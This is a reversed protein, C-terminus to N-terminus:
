ESIQLEIYPIMNGYRYDESWKGNTFMYVNNVKTNYKSILSPSYYNICDIVIHNSEIYVWEIGVFVGDKPFEVLEELNYEFIYQNTKKCKELKVITKSILDKSPLNILTDKSLVRIIIVIEKDFDNYRGFKMRITRLITNNYDKNYSFYKVFAYPAEGGNSSAANNKSRKIKDLKITKGKKPSINIKSLVPFKPTLLIIHNSDAIFSIQIKKTEYGVSSIIMYKLLDDDKDLMLIFSGDLASSTGWDNNDVCINVYPIPQKSFEDIILGKVSNASVNISNLLVVLLFLKSFIRLMSNKKLPNLKVAFIIEGFITFYLGKQM